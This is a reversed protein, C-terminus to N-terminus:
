RFLLRMALPFLWGVLVSTGAALTWTVVRQRAVSGAAVAPQRLLIFLVAVTITFAIIFLIAQTIPEPTGFLVSVAFAAVAATILARKMMVNMFRKKNSPMM